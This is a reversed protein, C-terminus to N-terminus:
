YTLTRFTRHRSRNLVKQTELETERTVLLYSPIGSNLWYSDIEDYNPSGKIGLKKASDVQMNISELVRIREEWFSKVSSDSELERSTAELSETVQATMEELLISRDPRSALDKLMTERAEARETPDKIAEVQLLNYASDLMFCSAVPGFGLAFTPGTLVRKGRADKKFETSWYKPTKDKGIKDRLTAESTATTVDVGFRVLEGKDTEFWLQSDTGRLNDDFQNTSSCKVKEGFLGCKVLILFAVETAKRFEQVKETEIDKKERRSLVRKLERMDESEVVGFKPHFTTIFDEDYISKTEGLNRRDCLALVFDVKEKYAPTELQQIMFEIEETDNGGFGSGSDGSGFVVASKKQGETYAASEFTPDRREGNEM